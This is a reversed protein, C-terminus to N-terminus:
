SCLCFSLLLPLLSYSITEVLRMLKSSLVAGVDTTCHQSSKEGAIIAFCPKADANSLLVVTFVSLVTVVILVDEGNRRKWSSVSCFMMGTEARKADSDPMGNQRVSSAFSKSVSQVSPKERQEEVNM